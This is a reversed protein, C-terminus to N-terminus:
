DARHTNKKAKEVSILTGRITTALPSIDVARSVSIEESLQRSVLTVNRPKSSEHCALTVYLKLLLRTKPHHGLLLFSLFWPM